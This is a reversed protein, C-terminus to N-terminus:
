IFRYDIRKLIKTKLIYQSSSHECFLLKFFLNFYVRICLNSFLKSINPGGNIVDDGDGGNIVDDGDGGNCCWHM